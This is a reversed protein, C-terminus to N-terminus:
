MDLVVEPRARMEEWSIVPANDCQPPPVFLAPDLPIELYSIYDKQNESRGQGLDPGTTLMQVPRNDDSAVAYIHSDGGPGERKDWVDCEIGNIIQQGLYEAGEQLWYPSVPTIGLEAVVCGPPGPFISDAAVLSGTLAGCRRQDATPPSRLAM